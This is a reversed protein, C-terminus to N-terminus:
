GWMSRWQAGHCSPAAAWRDVPDSACRSEEVMLQLAELNGEAAAVHLPTRKDCDCVLPDAGAKIYRRLAHLSKSHVAACMAVALDFPEM